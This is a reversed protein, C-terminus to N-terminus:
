GKLWDLSTGGRQNPGRQSTESGHSLRAGPRKKIPVTRERDPQDGLWGKAAGPSPPVPVGGQAAWPRLSAPDNM